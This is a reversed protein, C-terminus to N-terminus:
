KMLTGLLSAVDGLDIGDSKKSSSGTVAGLLSGLDLGSSKKSSGGALSLVGGLLDSLGASNSVSATNNAKKNTKALTTLLIPAAVAMIKAVKAKDIGAKAAVQQQVEATKEEDGYIHNLIKVGDEMDANKILSVIDAESLDHQDLAKLLSDAGDKTSANTQMKGLMSPLAQMLTQTIQDESASTKGSLASLSDKASSGGLLSLLDLANAM